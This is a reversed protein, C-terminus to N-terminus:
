DGLKAGCHGCFRGETVPNGCAPCFKGEGTPTSVKAMERYPTLNQLEEMPLLETEEWRDPSQEPAQGQAAAEMGALDQTQTVVPAAPVATGQRPEILTQTNVVQGNPLTVTGGAGRQAAKGRSVRRLLRFVWPLWLVVAILLGIQWTGALFAGRQTDMLYIKVGRTSLFAYLTYGTALLALLVWVGQLIRLAKKM